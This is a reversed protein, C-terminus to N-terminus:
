NLKLKVNLKVAILKIKTISDYGKVAPIPHVRLFAFSNFQHRNCLITCFIALLENVTQIIWKTTQRGEACIFELFRTPISQM